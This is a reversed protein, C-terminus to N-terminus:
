KAHSKIGYTLVDESLFQLQERIIQRLYFEAWSKADGVGGDVKVRRMLVKQGDCRTTWISLLGSQGALLEYPGFTARHISRHQTWPSIMAATDSILPTM